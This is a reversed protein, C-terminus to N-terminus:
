HKGPALAVGRRAWAIYAELATMKREDLKLLAGELPNQICWNIMERITAVRGLQKQYKPYTEYHTNAANPHCQACAVGNTGLSPSVWLARGEDAMAKYEAMWRDVDAQSFEDARAPALGGVLVLVLLSLSTQM